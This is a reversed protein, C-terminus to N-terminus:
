TKGHNEPIVSPQAPVIVVDTTGNTDQYWIKCFLPSKPRGNIAAVIRVRQEEKYASYMFGDVFNTINIWSDGFHGKYTMGPCQRALFRQFNNEVNPQERKSAQITVAYAPNNIRKRTIRKDSKLVSPLYVDSEPKNKVPEVGTLNHDRQRSSIKVPEPKIGTLNHGIRLLFFIYYFCFCNVGLFLIFIKSKRNM